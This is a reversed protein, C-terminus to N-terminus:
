AACVPIARHSVVNRASTCVSSDWRESLERVAGVHDFHGHTLIIGAPGRKSGFQREAWRRICQAPMPLGADVLTWSNPGRVAFINVMVVRLGFVGEAVLGLDSVLKRARGSAM